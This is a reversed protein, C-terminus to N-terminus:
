VLGLRIYKTRCVGSSHKHPEGHRGERMRERAKRVRACTESGVPVCDAAPVIGTPASEALEEFISEERGKRSARAAALDILLSSGSSRCFIVRLTSSSAREATDPSSCACTRTDKAHHAHSKTITHTHKYTHTKKEERERERMRVTCPWWGCAAQMCLRGVRRRYVYVWASGAYM